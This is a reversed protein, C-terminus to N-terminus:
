FYRNKANDALHGLM